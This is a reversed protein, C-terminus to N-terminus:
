KEEIGEIHIVSHGPNFLVVTSMENWSHAPDGVLLGPQGSGCGAQGQIGGPIPCGCGGQAVQSCHTVARQTFHILIPHFRRWRRKKCYNERMNCKHKAALTQLFSKEKVESKGGSQQLFICHKVKGTEQSGKVREEINEM